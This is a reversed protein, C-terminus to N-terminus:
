ENIIYIDIWNEELDSIYDEIKKNSATNEEIAKTMDYMIVEKQYILDNMFYGMVAIILYPLIILFTIWVRLTNM